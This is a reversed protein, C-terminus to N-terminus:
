ASLSRTLGRSELDASVNAMRLWLASGREPRLGQPEAAVMQSFAECSPCESSQEGLSTVQKFCTACATTTTRPAPAKPLSLPQAALSAGSDSDVDEEDLEEIAQALLIELEKSSGTVESRAAM